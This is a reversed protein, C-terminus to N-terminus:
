HLLTRGPVRFAVSRLALTTDSHIHNEQM